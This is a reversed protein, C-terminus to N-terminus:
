PLTYRLVVIGSGGQGGAGADYSGGGGGSGTNVTGATGAASSSSQTNASGGGGSGGSGDGTGNAYGYGAGGGGGARTVSSGTISNSLGSGGNGATSNAVANNGGGGAGGGGGALYGQRGLGYGGATGQGSTGSGGSHSTQVESSGGGGGSGGSVGASYTTYSRYSGGTGGGTSVITSGISSDSGNGGRPQVSVSGAGGAGGGGVTITTSSNAGITISSESSSNGGSTGVSTRYGGAGGGGGFSASGGAGGAIVLFDVPLSSLPNTFTGSSTFTHIRYSGSNTITGGSPLASATKNVGNSQIQDSNTVKITVANGASVNNYVSAPVAVTASTQSSPTVTVDVNINDSSQSFNVILNATLFNEGTLTLTTAQTLYINGSVSSLSPTVAAIKIWSTGNSYYVVNDDNDYRIHGETSSASPQQATTGRPLGLSTTNGTFNATNGNGDLTGGLQPSTDSVLDTNVTDFSLVGSGNTKLFQGNSGDEPLTYTVTSSLSTPGKFSIHNTDQDDSDFKITDNSGLLIGGFANITGTFSAGTLPAYASLDVTEFTPDAGNNARLFKGDNSSTGHPLKALTVAEDAIKATTVANNAITLSTAGTVDGTHTANTVKATNASVATNLTQLDVGDVTGTVTINGTVDLGADVNLNGNFTGTGSSHILFRNASNTEDYFILTGNTNAIHFDSNNDTDTLFIKPNTNEVNLNNYVNAQGGSSITFRDASSTYDRISFSGNLNRVVYDPNNNSDMLFLSPVTSTIEIYGTTEINQSGFDPSIKTGAIAASSSVNSDSITTWSLQGSGDTKLLQHNNGDTNPFTLTYSAAASHPPSKLKIGHSNASCNLQLTGDAGGAGKVEVVGTGDPILKINGNTVNTEINGQEISDLSVGDAAVDRGDVTGSVTINGGVIIGAGNVTLKNAGSNRIKLDGTGVDDIVSDNGNHYIELDSGTGFLAKVNDNYRNDGTFTNGTTTAFNGTATVGDVWANGTYVKLSNASTNFYLDGAALSNGGGDTSPNNAAVQYQDGFNNISNINASANNVSAINTATTNVNGISGAVTNVNAISGATTNVNGISGATTNVNSISGAVLGIDTGDAAVIGIDSADAAVANVDAINTAVTTINSSIGAVTTVETAKPVLRHFTYTHLTATSEVIFGFGSPITSTVGTITINANNALNGNSITLTTGSPTLATSAAKISLVAASGAQGQPNTNPFHQESEIIDFGGVDNVIDIIRDNIAATTAITTDNDPFTQGDKITDGSSINFFRADAAASTLFSTDNTTASGQEAATIVTAGNLKDSTISGAAYHENDLAGAAIHESNVVDDQINDGDIIDNALHVHDISGDVYHESNVSNDALKSSDIIDAELKGRTVNLDLIKATTVASNDIKATTVNLNAIHQTDVSGDVYHESNISDDAIKTGDIADASIHVRDISGDVYQDSDVSNASMHELDISGAAYHQSDIQDNAIHVGDISGDVYQDSDVSNASMHELDISGAVYHESNIQDDAIKDSTISDNKINSTEIASADIDYSHILNPIQEEQSRYLLQTNNNNLDAAKVSSGATYTAKATDVNTDRYIRINAPSSPINGSTFVVNGGGTTTYGTINYHTSTTKLVGDVRVKVDSEQLSPFTFQKTANGDGTYEVFTTAM